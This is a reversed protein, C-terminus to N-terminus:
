NILQKITLNRIPDIYLPAIQLLPILVFDRKLYSIHPVNLGPINIIESGYFIIDLDITRSENKGKTKELRGLDVEIKQLKKLVEWASLETEIEICSNLFNEDSEM